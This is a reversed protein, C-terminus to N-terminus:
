RIRATLPSDTQPTATAAAVPMHTFLGGEYLRRHFQRLGSRWRLYAGGWKEHLALMAM